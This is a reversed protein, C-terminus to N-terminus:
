LPWVLICHHQINISTFIIIMCFWTITRIRDDQSLSCTVPIIIMNILKIHCHAIRSTKNTSHVQYCLKLPLPIKQIKCGYGHDMFIKGLLVVWDLAQFTFTKAVNTDLSAHFTWWFKQQRHYMLIIYNFMNKCKIPASYCSWNLPQVPSLINLIKVWSFTTLKYYRLINHCLQYQLKPLIKCLQM